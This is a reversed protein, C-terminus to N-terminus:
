FALCVVSLVDSATFALAAGTSITQNQIAVSTVTDNPGAQQVCQQDARNASRATLNEIFCNWGTASAPLQIVGGTAVGGTGVNIRFSNATGSLISAGVGFGSAITPATSSILLTSGNTISTQVIPGCKIGGTGATASPTAGGVVLSNATTDTTVIKSFSANQTTAM